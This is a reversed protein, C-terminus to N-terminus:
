EKRKRKIEVKIPDVPVEPEVAEVVEPLKDVVITFVGNVVTAKMTDIDADCPLMEGFSMKSSFTGGKRTMEVTVMNTEDDYEVNIDASTTGNPVNLVFVYNDGEEEFKSNLNNMVDSYAKCLGNASETFRTRLKEDNLMSLLTRIM